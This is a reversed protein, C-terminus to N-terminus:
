NANTPARGWSSHQPLTEEMQMWPSAQTVFDVRELYQHVLQQVSRLVMVDGTCRRWYRAVSVLTLVSEAPLFRIAGLDLVLSGAGGAQLAQVVSQYLAERHERQDLRQPSLVTPLMSVDEHLSTETPM